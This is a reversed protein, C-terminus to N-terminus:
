RRPDRAPASGADSSSPAGAASSPIRLASPVAPVASAAPITAGGVLADGFSPPLAWRRDFYGGGLVRADGLVQQGAAPALGSDFVIFDPLALPLSMARWLGAASVAELVVVYHEPSAPNPYVAIFGLETDGTLRTGGARVGGGDIGLPLAADLEKIFFNTDRNGVLFLSHTSALSRPAATDALVPYRTSGSWRNRFHEAVERAANTQRDDLTGYVFAM